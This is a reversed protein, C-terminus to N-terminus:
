EIIDELKCDYRAEEMPKAKMLKFDIRDLIRSATTRSVEIGFSDTIFSIVNSLSPHGSDKITVKLKESLLQYQAETLLEPRKPEKPKKQFAEFHRKITAHSKSPSYM